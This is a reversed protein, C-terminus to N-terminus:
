QFGHGIWFSRGWSSSSFFIPQSTKFRFKSLEFKPLLWSHFISRCGQVRKTLPPKGLTTWVSYVGFRCNECYLQGRGALAAAATARTAIWKAAAGRASCPKKFLEGGIGKRVPMWFTDIWYRCMSYRSIRPIELIHIEINTTPFDVTDDRCWGNKSKTKIGPSPWTSRWHSDAESHTGVNWGHESQKFECLKPQMRGKEVKCM